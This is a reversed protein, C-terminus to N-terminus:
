ELKEGRELVPNGGVPVGTAAAIKWSGGAVRVMSIM